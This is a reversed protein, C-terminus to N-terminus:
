KDIFDLYTQYFIEVEKIEEPTAEGEIVILDHMRITFSKVKRVYIEPGTVPDDCVLYVPTKREKTKYGKSKRKLSILLATAQKM